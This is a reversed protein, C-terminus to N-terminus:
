PACTGRLEFREGAPEVDVIVVIRDDDFSAILRAHNPDGVDIWDMAFTHEDHWQGKLAVRNDRPLRGFSGTPTLRYLGDLGIALRHTGNETGVTLWAQGSEDFDFAIAKYPSREDAADLRYTRGALDHALPPPEPVSAPTPHQISSVLAQLEQVAEPNPPLPHGGIAAVDFGGFWRRLGDPDGFNAAVVMNLGPLVVIHQGGWGSARYGIDGTLDRWWWYGYGDDAEVGQMQNRTSEKVWSAPVIQRGNWRGGNLYLLGFAAMDRPKMFLEAGGFDYGLPDQRWQVEGIGLPDFLRSRCLQLLRQGSARTLIGSMIHTLATSYLFRGGPDASMPRALAAKIWDDSAVIDTWIPGNEDLDLGATMTLLHRLTISRKRPDADDAVYAPFFSHVAQDLGALMGEQLAIGVVASMISKSVSKVNHLTDKDYPPAYVELVIDGNRVIILSHLAIGDDRLPRLARTLDRSDVGQEEPTSHRWVFSAGAHDLGGGDATEVSSQRADKEM